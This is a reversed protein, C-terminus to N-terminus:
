EKLISFINLGLQKAGGALKAALPDNMLEVLLKEEQQKREAPDQITKINEMRQNFGEIKGRLQHLDYKTLGTDFDVTKIMFTLAANDPQQIIESLMLTRGFYGYSAYGATAVTATALSLIAILKM